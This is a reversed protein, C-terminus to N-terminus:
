FGFLEKLPIVRWIQKVTRADFTILKEPNYQQVTVERSTRKILKKIFSKGAQGETDGFLEIVVHDQPVAERGGAYIMEGPDYRPVMSDSLVHLAFVNRLHAIGPPRRVYGSVEGNFSFDGDDGGYTVGLLEVDRPGSPPPGRETVIEADGLEDDDLYILEGRGLAAPDLRLIEAVAFLNDSSPMNKGGEWLGVAAVDIKLPEALNRQVLGRRKRATRIAAGVAMARQSKAMSILPAREAQGDIYNDRASLPLNQKYRLM